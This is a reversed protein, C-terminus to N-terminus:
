AGAPAFKQLIERYAQLRAGLRLRRFQGPLDRRYRASEASSLAADPVEDAGEPIFKLVEELAAVAWALRSYASRRAAEDLGDPSAPVSRALGESVALFQGADLIQSPQQGGYSAGATTHPVMPVIFLFQRAAGCQPCPGEFYSVLEGDVSRTGHQLKRWDSEGCACPHLDMYLHEEAVSRIPLLRRAAPAGAVAQAAAAM